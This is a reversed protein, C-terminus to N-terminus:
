ADAANVVLGRISINIPDLSSPELIIAASDASHHVAVYAPADKSMEITYEIRSKEPM